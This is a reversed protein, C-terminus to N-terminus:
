CIAGIRFIAFAIIDSWRCAITYITKVTVHMQIGSAEGEFGLNIISLESFPEGTKDSGNGTIVRDICAVGAASYLNAIQGYLCPM